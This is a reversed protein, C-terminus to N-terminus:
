FDARAWSHNAEPGALGLLQNLKTGAARNAVAELRLTHRNLSHRRRLCWVPEDPESRVSGGEAREKGGSGPCPSSEAGFRHGPTQSFYNFQSTDRGKEHYSRFPDAPTDSRRCRKVYNIGIGSTARSMLSLSVWGIFIRRQRPVPRRVLRRKPQRKAWIIRSIQPAVPSFFFSHELSSDFGGRREHFFANM